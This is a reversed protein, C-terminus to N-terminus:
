QTKASEEVSSNVNAQDSSLGKLQVDIAAADQELGKDTTSMGSPLTTTANTFVGEDNVAHKQQYWYFGAAALVLVVAVVVGVKANQSM